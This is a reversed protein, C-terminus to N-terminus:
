SALLTRAKVADEAVSATDALVTVNGGSIELVGEGTVFYMERGGGRAHLIGRQLAVIMPAHHALVGFRGERGPAELSEVAGQFTEGEPTYIAMHFTSM